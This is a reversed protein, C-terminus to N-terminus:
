TTARCWNISLSWCPMGVGGGWTVVCGRCFGDVDDGGWGEPDFREPSMYACTGINSDCAERAREMVHSVGFDAIKVEGKDNVFLNSPKIDRHVIQMGHLYHLGELVRKAMSSIVQETLRQRARLVDQLSGGEMYEMVFCLNGGCKVGVFHNDFVALCMIIYQSDVQKLIDAECAAQLYVSVDNQNIRLVKLAYISMTKKHLVKYVTGSSGHGLIAIKELGSLNKIGLSNPSPCSLFTPFQTQHQFESAPKPPPLSLRLAHLRHRREREGIDNISRGFKRREKM